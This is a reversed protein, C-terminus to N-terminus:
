GPHYSNSGTGGNVEYTFHGDNNRNTDHSSCTGYGGQAVHYITSHGAKFAGVGANRGDLERDCVKELSDNGTTDKLQSFDNGQYAETQHHGKEVGIGVYEPNAQILFLGLVLFLIALIATTAKNTLATM